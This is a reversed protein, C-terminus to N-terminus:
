PFILKNAIHKTEAARHQERYRRNKLFQANFRDINDFIEAHNTKETCYQAAHLRLYYIM